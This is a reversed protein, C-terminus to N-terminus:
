RAVTKYKVSLIRHEMRHEMRRLIDTYTSTILPILIHWPSILGKFQIQLSLQCNFNDRKWLLINFNEWVNKLTDSQRNISDFCGTTDDWVNKFLVWRRLLM